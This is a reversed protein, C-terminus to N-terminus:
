GIRNRNPEPLTREALPQIELTADDNRLV